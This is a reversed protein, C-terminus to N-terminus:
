FTDVHTVQTTFQINTKSALSIASIKNNKTQIYRPRQKRPRSCSHKSYAPPFSHCVIGVFFLYLLPPLLYLLIRLNDPQLEKDADALPRLLFFSFQAEGAVM